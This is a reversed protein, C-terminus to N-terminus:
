RLSHRAALSWVLTARFCSAPCSPSSFGGDSFANIDQPVQGWVFQPLAEIEFPENGILHRFTRAASELGITNLHQVVTSMEQDLTHHLDIGLLNRQSQSLQQFGIYESPDRQWYPVNHFPIMVPPIGLKLPTPLLNVLQLLALQDEDQTDERANKIRPHTCTWLHIHDHEAANCHICLSSQANEQAHAQAPNHSGLTAYYAVIKTQETHAATKQFVKSIVGHDLENLGHM